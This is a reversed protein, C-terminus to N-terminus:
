EDRHHKTKGISIGAVIKAGASTLKSQYKLMSRGKTILDDFILVYKDKFFDKDLEVECDGSGGLHKEEADKIITVHNFANVMGTANCLRNSFDEYRRVNNIKKSAPICFLVLYKLSDEGFTEILFNTIMPIVQQLASEHDSVSTKGLSNKFNWILWRDSWEEETADFDCTTPYYNIFYHFHLGGYMSHWSSVAYMLNKKANEEKEQEARIKAQRQTEKDILEQMEAKDYAKLLTIYAIVPHSGEAQSIIKECLRKLEDNETVIDFVIIAGSSPIKANYNENSSSCVIHAKTEEKALITRLPNYHYDLSDKSWDKDYNFLVTTTAGKDKLYLDAIEKIFKAIRDYVHPNYYRTKNKLEAVWSSNEKKEKYYTYDLEELCMSECFFQWVQYEGSIARGNVDYKTFPIDYYYRGYSSLSSKSIKYCEDSFDSQRKEWQESKVHKDRAAISRESKIIKQDDIIYFSHLLREIHEWNEFGDPYKDKIAKATKENEKRIREQEEKEKKLKKEEQEWTTDDRNSIKKLESLKPYKGMKPDREIDIRNERVFKKYALCYKKQITKIREEHKEYIKNEHRSYICIFIIGIIIVAFVIIMLIGFPPVGTAEGVCMCFILLICGMIAVFCGLSGSFDDM